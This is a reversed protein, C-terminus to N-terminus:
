RAQTTEGTTIGSGNFTDVAVYCDIGDNLQGITITNSEKGVVQWSHYLKDPATGWRVNYGDCDQAPTWSVRMTMGDLRTAAVETAPAPAAKGAHGFVRLGSMSFSGQFPMEFGTVRVYRLRRGEAICVLDHSLDTDTGRRDALVLWRTGDESGELLWTLRHRGRREAPLDQERYGPLTQLPGLNHEAFNLQIARVDVVDGLDVSIHEGPERTGAAWRTRISEDTVNEPPYGTFTSSATVPKGYSLLMWGPFCETWPDDIKRQPLIMPYDAYNMNSYLVGDRDFGTPFLGVRREFSEHVAVVMSSIHWWNGYRDQLTSGHGAGTIFGGPKASFPSDAGYVFPGLPHDSVYYGDAYVNYETGPGAYQLYYKGDHKTMWAGEIWPRPDQVPPGSTEGPFTFGRRNDNDTGPREWGHIDQRGELLAVPEGRPTMTDKDMEVGWIPSTNSCGWYFYVRGDDDEFFDPDWFAFPSSVKEWEGSMPDRTRWITGVGTGSACQYLWGDVERIDPAGFEIPLDRGDVFEWDALNDSVYFGKTSPFLYYRGKFLILSPDAMSRCVATSSFPGRFRYPLNVPNCIIRDM